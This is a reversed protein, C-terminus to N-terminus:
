RGGMRDSAPFKQSPCSEFSSVETKDWIGGLDTYERRVRKFLRWNGRFAAGALPPLPMKQESTGSNHTLKKLLFENILESTANANGRSLISSDLHDPPSKNPTASNWAAQVVIAAAPHSPTSTSLTARRM